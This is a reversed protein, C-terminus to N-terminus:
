TIIKNEELKTESKEDVINRLALMMNRDELELALMKVLTLIQRQNVGFNMIEAVIERCKASEMISLNEEKSSYDKIM